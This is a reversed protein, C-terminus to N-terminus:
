ASAVRAENPHIAEPIPKRGARSALLRRIRDLVAQPHYPNPASGGECLDSAAAVARPLTGALIVDLGPRNARVWQSLGFGDMPGPMKIDSFVIDMQIQAHQLVLIAEDASAAEIVRYGCDRLYESLALRILVEDNVILITEAADFPRHKVPM